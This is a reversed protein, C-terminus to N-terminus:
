ENIIRKQVEYKMENQSFICSSIFVQCLVRGYKTSSQVMYARQGVCSWLSLRSREPHLSQNSQGQVDGVSLNICPEPVDCRTPSMKVALTPWCFLAQCYLGMGFRLAYSTYNWSTYFLYLWVRVHLVQQVQLHWLFCPRWYWFRNEPSWM